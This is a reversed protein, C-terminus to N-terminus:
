LLTGSLVLIAITFYIILGTVDVLTAVFPASSTAPDLGLRSLIFPLMSGVLSGWLVVGVLTMAVTIAVRTAHLSYDQWGMTHWLQVRGLGMVGLWLGLLLACAFERRLVRWWDRLRVEGVALARIILSTAQSGSNGGSSIILPIFLTLVLAQNLAGEFREMVTATLMQGLFLVSLWVGRKRFMTWLPASVYPEDLAAMGGMKHIDETAEQEAVDLMDDITIIGLMQGAADTVPLATRDYKEFTRLAEERDATAPVSVVSRDKIDSLRTAPNALIISGLRIDDLLLGREDVLYINSLTEKDRGNRRIADIAESASLHPRLAVYEPTMYRGATEEPYGLLQRAERLEAPSLTELLQRTVEAPLEELLRTRDDPSMENLIAHVQGGSLSQVLDQQQELPLYEFVNAAQERPLVRFIIGKEEAPVDTILDAIDAPELESFAERLEHWNKSRIIEAVDAQLLAGIM